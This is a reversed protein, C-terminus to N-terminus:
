ASAAQNRSSKKNSCSASALLDRFVYGAAAFGPLLWRGQGIVQRGQLDIRGPAERHAGLPYEIGALGKVLAV